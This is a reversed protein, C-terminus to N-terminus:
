KANQLTTINLTLLELLNLYDQFVDTIDLSEGQNCQSIAKWNPVVSIFAIDRARDCHPDTHSMIRGIYAHYFAM